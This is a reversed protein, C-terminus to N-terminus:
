LFNIFPHGPFACKIQKFRFITCKLKITIFLLYYLLMQVKNVLALLIGLSHQLTEQFAKLHLDEENYVLTKSGIFQFWDVSTCQYFRCTSLYIM